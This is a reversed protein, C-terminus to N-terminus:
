RFKKLESDYLEVRKFAAFDPAFKPLDRSIAKVIAEPNLTPNQAAIVARLTLRTEDAQTFSIYNILPVIDVETLGHKTKKPIIISKSTFYDTLAASVGPKLGSDCHLIGEAELWVIESFKRRPTYATEAFIGEPMFPNLTEALIDEAKSDLLECDLLECVSEQGVSLPLALSMYPHPNFGETHRLAVGARVFSRQLTRMLDLHSIYKARGTKQFLLRTM